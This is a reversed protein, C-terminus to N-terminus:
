GAWPGNEEHTTHWIIFGSIVFFVDVGGFGALYVAYLWGERAIGSAWVQEATHYALVPLAALFRLLHLNILM